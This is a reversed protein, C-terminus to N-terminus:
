KTTVHMINIQRIITSNQVGLGLVMTYMNKSGGREKKEDLTLFYLIFALVCVQASGTELVTEINEGAPQSWSRVFKTM